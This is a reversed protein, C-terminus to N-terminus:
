DFVRAIEDIGIGEKEARLLYYVVAPLIAGMVSYFASVPILLLISLIVADPALITVGVVVAGVAIILVGYVLLLGVISWRRGRSLQLARGFGAFFRTDEVVLVPVVVFWIVFIYFMFIGAAGGVLILPMGGASGLVIVVVIPVIAVVGVILSAGIVRQVRHFGNSFIDGISVPAGRLDQFTAYTVPTTILAYVFLGLVSSGGSEGGGAGGSLVYDVASQIATVILSIVAMPWLNRGLVGFALSLARGIAFRPADPTSPAITDVM